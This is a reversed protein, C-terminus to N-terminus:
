LPLHVHLLDLSGAPRLKDRHGYPLGKHRALDGAGRVGCGTGEGAGGAVGGCPRKWPAARCPAPATWSPGLPCSTCSCGAAWGRAKEEAAKEEAAGAEGGGEKDDAPAADAAEGRAAGGDRRAGGRGTLACPTARLRM